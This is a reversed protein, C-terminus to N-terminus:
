LLGEDMLSKYSDNGIIMSDLLSIELLTGAAQIKKSIKIDAESPNLNGSPHNHALIISSAGCNLATTYVVKPDAVTGSLGGKSMKYFGIVRNARNLCILLMEELWDFTDNDFLHLEKFMQYVDYSCSIKHLDTKKVARDYSVSIKIEPIIM